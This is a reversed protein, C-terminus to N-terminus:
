FRYNRDRVWLSVPVANGNANVKAEVVFPITRNNANVQSQADGIDDNVQNRQNEPMYYKELGYKIDWGQSEGQIVLQSPKLNDPKKSSIAVPKWATPKGESPQSAPAELLVYVTTGRKLGQSGECKAETQCVGTEVLLKKYGPLTMLSDPRSIDYSLTQYYGRLFDFPDVPMTQLIITKGTLHTHIAQAPVFLLILLQLGLPLWFRWASINKNILSNPLIAVQDSDATITPLASQNPTNPDIQETM